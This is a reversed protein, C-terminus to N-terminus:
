AAALASPPPANKNKRLGYFTLYGNRITFSLAFLSGSGLLAYADAIAFRFGFEKQSWAGLFSLLVDSKMVNGIMTVYYGLRLWQICLMFITHVLLRVDQEHRHSRLMGMKRLQNYKLFTRMNFFFALTSQPIYYCM